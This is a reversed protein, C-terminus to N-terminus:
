KIFNAWIKKKSEVIVFKIIAKVLNLHFIGHLLLSCLCKNTDFKAVIQVVIANGMFNRIVKM